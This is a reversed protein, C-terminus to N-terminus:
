NQSAQQETINDQKTIKIPQEYLEALVASRHALFPQMNKQAIPAASPTRVRHPNVPSGNKYMRFCLHPGTALGTSGVYGITQGQSVRRGQKIGRAFKSMHLYLTEYSSNHRIKIFNGNGRTYGKKIVTGDGVSKIPTGTPAAYDIAPHAKWTKTIPHFRRMTFGSSIRSFALPAKLFAKRLSQGNADYYDPRKDGDQYFIEEFTTGSNTFEGAMIRGYGAPQGERFRKEVLAQFSDGQRIDLIFDIDWAFIDALNMALVESEGIQTVAEFLSTDIKGRIRDIVVTYPIPEREVQFTESDRTIILQENRDIDYEFREFDGNSLCLRYPQGACLGSLPFVPKSVQTLAHIERADFYTSLLGTITDGSAIEGRIIERKIEPPKPPLSQNTDVVSVDNDDVTPQLFFSCILLIALVLVLWFRLRPKDKRRKAAGRIPPNFDIHM